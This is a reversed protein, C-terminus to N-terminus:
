RLVVDVVLVSVGELDVPRVPIDEGPQRLVAVVLVELLHLLGSLQVRLLHANSGARDVVLLCKEVLVIVAFILNHKTPRLLGLRCLRGLLPDDRLGLSLRDEFTELDRRRSVLDLLDLLEHCNRYTTRTHRVQYTGLRTQKYTMMVASKVLLGGTSLTYLTFGKAIQVSLTRM